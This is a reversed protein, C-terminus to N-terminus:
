TIERTANKKSLKSTEVRRREEHFFHSNAATLFHLVQLTPNQPFFCFCVCCICLVTVANM